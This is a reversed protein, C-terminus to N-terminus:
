AVRLWMGRDVVGNSCAVDSLRQLFAQASPTLKGFTPMVLPVMTAENSM